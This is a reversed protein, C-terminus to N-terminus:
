NALRYMGMMALGMALGTIGAKRSKIGFISKSKLIAAEQQRLQRQGSFYSYAGLGILTSAGTFILKWRMATVQLMPCLTTLDSCPGFVRCPLCDDLQDQALVTDLNEPQQLQFLSPISGNGMKRTKDPIIGSIHTM